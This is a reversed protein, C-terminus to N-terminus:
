RERKVGIRMEGSAMLVWEEGQQRRLEGGRQRKGKRISAEM